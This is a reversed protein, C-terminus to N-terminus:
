QLVKVVASVSESSSWLWITDDEMLEVRFTIGTRKQKGSPTTWSVDCKIKRGESVPSDSCTLVFYESMTDNSVRFENRSANYGLQGDAQNYQRVTKGGVILRPTSDDLLATDFNDHVCSIVLLATILLIATYALSKM